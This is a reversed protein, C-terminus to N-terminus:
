VRRRCLSLASRRRNASRSHRHSLLRHSVAQIAEKSAKRGRDRTFPLYRPTASMSALCRTLHPITPQLAYLCGDLPLLTYKRFAVIAAEGEPTLMTSRIAKPGMPADHAFSRKRWKAVTKPNVGHLTALRNLSAQSHRIARRIAETTRASGHPVQGM